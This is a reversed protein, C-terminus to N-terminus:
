LIDWESTRNRDVVSTLSTASLPKDAPALGARDAGGIGFGVGGPGHRCQAFHRRPQAAGLHQRYRQVPAHVTQEIAVVVGLGGDVDGGMVKQALM